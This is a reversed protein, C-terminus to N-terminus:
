SIGLKTENRKILQSLRDSQKLEPSGTSALYENVDKPAAFNSKFYNVGGNILEEKEKVSDFVNGPILGFQSGYKM